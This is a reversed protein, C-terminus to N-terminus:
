AWPVREARPTTLTAMRSMTRNTLKLYYHRYRIVCLWHTTHLSPTAVPQTPLRLLSVTLSPATNTHLPALPVIAPSPSQGPM